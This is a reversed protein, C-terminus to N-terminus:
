STTTVSEQPGTVELAAEREISNASTGSADGKWSSMMVIAVAPIV